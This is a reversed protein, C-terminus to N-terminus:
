AAPTLEAVAAGFTFGAGFACLGAKGGRHGERLLEALVLPITSSSSNGAHTVRNLVREPRDKLRHRAAEIIRGNAQHPIILDLDRISLHSEACAQELLALMQRVALPFVKVGDMHVPSCAGRDLGVGPCEVRGHNLVSGDEGRASLVPRHLRMRAGRASPSSVGHVLTATAADAFVIATDFDAPDVFRSMAEATVVMVTAEPRTQCFDFAQQLAYLYGTCAALIDYAPLDKGFGGVGLAHHLRCALSPSISLPSSTSVILASLDALTLGGGQLVARAASVALTLVSEGDALHPRSQIGTRQIIDAETRGPFRAALEASSVQRGGSVATIGSVAVTESRAANTATAEISARAPLARRRITPQPEVPVRKPQSLSGQARHLKAIPTGIRVTEGV